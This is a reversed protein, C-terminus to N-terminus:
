QNWKGDGVFLYGVESASLPTEGVDPARVGLHQGPWSEGPKERYRLANGGGAAEISTCVSGSSRLLERLDHLVAWEPAIGKKGPMSSIANM